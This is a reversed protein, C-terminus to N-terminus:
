ALRQRARESVRVQLSAAARAAPRDPWLEDTLRDAPVVRGRHVLLLALVTKTRTASVDLTRGGAIVEVPGLIRYEM